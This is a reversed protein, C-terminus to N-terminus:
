RSPRHCRVGAHSDVRGHRTNCRLDGPHRMIVHRIAVHYESPMPPSRSSASQGARVVSGFDTWGVAALSRTAIQLMDDQLLASDYLATRRRAKHKTVYLM